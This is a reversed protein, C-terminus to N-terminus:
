LNSKMKHNCDDKSFSQQFVITAAGFVLVFAAFLLWYQIGPVGNDFLDSVGQIMLLIENLIIGSVFLLIGNRTGRNIHIQRFSFCYALLFITVIGLLILHLYGIVIPRFGFAMRSVSPIVSATQLVLKISLALGFFIFLVRQFLPMRKRIIPFIKKVLRVLFVWGTLQCVSALIVIMYLWAPIHWWLVSLFYTPLAAIAFLRFPKKLSDETVGLVVLRYSMLGLCTFIFWVNYQFHLYFYISALYRNQQMHDSAMMYALSFPGASSVVNGLLALKFWSRSVSHVTLRNLDRWFLIVFYYSTFVSLTSFLISVTGYGQVPFSFLM